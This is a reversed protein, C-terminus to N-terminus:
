CSAPIQPMDDGESVEVFSSIDFAIGELLVYTIEHPSFLDQERELEEEVLFVTM